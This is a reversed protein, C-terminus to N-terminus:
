SSVTHLGFTELGREERWSNMEQAKASASNIKEADEDQIPYARYRYAPDSITDSFISVASATDGARLAAWLAALHPALCDRARLPFIPEGPELESSLGPLTTQEAM